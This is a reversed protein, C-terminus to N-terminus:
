VLRRAITLGDGVPLTSIAVRKDDRIRENVERIARTSGRQDDSDIVSGSWFVNDVLILGGPRVLEICQEYYHPYTEKDADIFTMDFTGAQGDRLMDNVVDFAPGIRLDIKSAVGAEQWLPQGIRVYEDTLDCTIIEGDDPLALAMWLTGYGTFTGIELYRRVGAIQALLAMFQAQEPSTRWGSQELEGTRQRLKAVHPPERVSHAIMYDYLDDGLGYSTASM